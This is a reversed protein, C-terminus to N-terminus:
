STHHQSAKELEPEEDDLYNWQKSQLFLFLADLHGFLQVHLECMETTKNGETEEQRGEPLALVYENM